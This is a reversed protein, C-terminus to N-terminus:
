GSDSDRVIVDPLKQFVLSGIEGYKEAQEEDGNGQAKYKMRKDAPFDQHDGHQKIGHGTSKIGYNERFHDAFVAAQASGHSHNGCNCAQYGNGQTHM